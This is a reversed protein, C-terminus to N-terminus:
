ISAVLKNKERTVTDGSTERTVGNALISLTLQEKLSGSLVECGLPLPWNLKKVPHTVLVQRTNKFKIKFITLKGQSV